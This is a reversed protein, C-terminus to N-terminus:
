FINDVELKGRTKKFVITISNKSWYEFQYSDVQINLLKIFAKLAGPINDLTVAAGSGVSHKITLRERADNLPNAKVGPSWEARFLSGDSCVVLVAQEVLREVDSM